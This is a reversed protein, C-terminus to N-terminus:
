RMLQGNLALVRDAFIVGHSRAPWGPSAIQSVGNNPELLM